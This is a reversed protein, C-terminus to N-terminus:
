KPMPSADPLKFLPGLKLQAEVNWGGGCRLAVRNQHKLQISEHQSAECRIGFKVEMVMRLLMISPLVM